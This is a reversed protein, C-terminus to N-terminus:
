VESPVGYREQYHRFVPRERSVEEAEDLNYRHAGFKGQPKSAIYRQMREVADRTLEMSFYAYVNRAVGIPDTIIDKYRVDCIQENPILRQDRQRMVKELRAATAGAQM